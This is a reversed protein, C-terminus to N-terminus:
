NKWRILIKEGADLMWYGADVIWCGGDVIRKLM